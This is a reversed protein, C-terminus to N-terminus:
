LKKRLRKDLPENDDSDDDHDRLSQLYTSLKTAGDQLSYITAENLWETERQSGTAPRKFEVHYYLKGSIHKQGTIRRVTNRGGQDNHRLGVRRETAEDTVGSYEQILDRLENLSVEFWEKGRDKKGEKTLKDKIKKELIEVASKSKTTDAHYNNLLLLYLKVGKHPNESTKVGYALIYDMIRKKANGSAVGVKYIEKDEFNPKIVYFIRKGSLNNNKLWDDNLEIGELSTTHYKLKNM